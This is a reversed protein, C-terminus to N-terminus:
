FAALRPDINDVGSPELATHGLSMVGQGDGFSSIFSIQLDVLSCHVLFSSFNVRNIKSRDKTGFM